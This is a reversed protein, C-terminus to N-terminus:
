RRWRAIWRTALAGLITVTLVAGTHSTFVHAPDSVPCALRWGADAALGASAAALTGALGPRTPLWRLLLWSLALLLPIAASVTSRYCRANARWTLDPPLITPSIAFTALTLAVIVGVAVGLAAMTWASPMRRSPLGERAALWLLLGAVALEVASLGWSVFPGLAAADFRLGVIAPQWIVVIAALALWVAVRRWPRAGEGVPHLDDAVHYLLRDRTPDADHDTM